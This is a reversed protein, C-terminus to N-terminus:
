VAYIIYLLELQEVNVDVIPVIMRRLTLLQLPKDCYRMIEVLKERIVLYTSYGEM